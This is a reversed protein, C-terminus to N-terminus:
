ARGQHLHLTRDALARLAPRHAVILSTRGVLLSEAATVIASESRPDLRATPEDLLVLPADRLYARALALRQRQGSSLGTGREGLVTDYGDRLEAIFEEAGAAHAAARLADDSADPLGLRLNDAISMAFLHPSQPVWALERRWHHLDVDALDVGNVLIRGSDPTVFGLLLHLLTSKGAGSPGTVAVREGPEVVLSVRHLAPRSRGPYTVTVDDLRIEGLVTTTKGRRPRPEALVREARALVALGEAGAHFRTGLARLPLFAEPTLVLVVLAAELSMGGDLLRLGIPVAVLAVALSCVLELVLGSLFAVRLAGMTVQRHADAMTRIVGAQHETRNFARLTPLGVVVDRFHGGLRNLMEWQRETVDRTRLGILAGFVPVLPLTVLVIVMSTLDAFGLRLLVIPPIVVAATLQPVYGGYYPDLADLGKTLLTAFEGGSPRSEARRLLEVRLDAKRKAAGRQNHLSYAWSVVARAAVTVALWPLVLPDLHAIARALLEAQVVILIGQAAVLVIRAPNM